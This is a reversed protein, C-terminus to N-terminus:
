DATKPPASKSKDRGGSTPRSLASNESPSRGPADGGSEANLAPANGEGKGKGTGMPRQAAAALKAAG